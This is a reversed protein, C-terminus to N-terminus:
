LDCCEAQSCKLIRKVEPAFGSLFSYRKCCRLPRRRLAHEKQGKHDSRTIADRQQQRTNTRLQLWRAIPNCRAQYQDLVCSVCPIRHRRDRCFLNLGPFPPPLLEEITEREIADRAFRYRICRM